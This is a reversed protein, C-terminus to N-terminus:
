DETGNKKGRAKYSALPEAVKRESAPTIHQRLPVVKAPKDEGPGASITGPSAAASADLIKQTAPTQAEDPRAYAALSELSSRLDADDRAVVMLDFFARQTTVPLSFYVKEFTSGSLSDSALIADALTPGLRERIWASALRAATAPSFAKCIAVLTDDKPLSDGTAFDSIRSRHIGVKTALSSATLNADSLAAAFINNFLGM